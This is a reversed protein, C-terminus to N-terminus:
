SGGLLPRLASRVQALLPGRGAHRQALVLEVGAAEFKARLRRMDNAWVLLEMKAIIKGNGDTEVLDAYFHGESRPRSTSLEARVWFRKGRAIKLYEQVRATVERLTYFRTSMAPALRDCSPLGLFPAATHM